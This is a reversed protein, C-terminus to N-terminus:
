RWASAQRRKKKRTKNGPRKSVGGKTQASPWM